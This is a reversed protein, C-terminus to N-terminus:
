ALPRFEPGSLRAALQSLAAYGTYYDRSRVTGRDDLVEVVIPAAPADFLQDVRLETMERVFDAEAVMRPPANGDTMTVRLM